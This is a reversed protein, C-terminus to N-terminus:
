RYVMVYTAKFGCFRKREAANVAEGRDWPLCGQRHSPGFGLRAREDCSMLTCFYETPRETTRLPEKLADIHPRTWKALRCKWIVVDSDDNSLNWQKPEANMNKKAEWLVGLVGFTAIQLNFKGSGTHTAEATTTTQWKTFVQM